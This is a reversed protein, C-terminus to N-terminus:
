PNPFPELRLMFRITRLRDGISGGDCPPALLLGGDPSVAIAEVEVLPLKGAEITIVARTTYRPLGLARAIENSLCMAGRNM